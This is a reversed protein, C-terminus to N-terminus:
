LIVFNFEFLKVSQLYVICNDESTAFEKSMTIPFSSNRKIITTMMGGSTEIGLSFPLVDSLTLEPFSKSKAESLIAAKVAAGYAVAEDLNVSKNLGREFFAQLM